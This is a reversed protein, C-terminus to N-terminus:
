NRKFLLYQYGQTWQAYFSKCSAVEEIVALRADVTIGVAKCEERKSCDNLAEGINDFTEFKDVCLGLEKAYDIFNSTIIDFLM